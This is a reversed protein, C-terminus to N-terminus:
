EGHSGEPNVPDPRGAAPGREALYTTRPKLNLEGLLAYNRPDQRAAAVASAGDHLDGFTIARTPCAGQCATQVAGDPIPANTEDSVIRAQAIRQVCYTCKEMVGKSRVTVDPNRQQQLAPAPDTYDLYNFHRVKYPCYGSCARTGVCRNYVMLNLGEHDHLTAEVPCGVECPADECHMCPVPQFHTDPDDLGPSGKLGSYYRDIRLWHMERGVAVQDRGVIPINNESQCAVVCANCGICSDEDIVMGWARGDDDKPKAGQPPYLTPMSENRGAFGPAGVAQVRILDHGELTSHDQTTAFRVARGLKTLTAGGAQSVGDKGILAFADYGLGASLADPVRRGYGLSLTVTDPAQGPLIWVPGELSRQDLTIRVLDGQALKEREALAPGVAIPNDWVIKTLPKPLEQLWGNDAFRGDWVTPDPRFLLTLGTPSSAPDPSSAPAEFSPQVTELAFSSDRVYGDILAQRWVSDSLKGDGEGLWQAKLLALGDRPEAETLMAMIEPGSRGNYLPAIMPQILSVTGDFARADGWSELPHALPVHWDAHAATEDVMSGAHLKLKVRSLADVFGLEAPTSYAPNTDIMVLASVQGQAMAEVLAEITEAQRLLPQTFTVTQGINGLAANLRHVAEQVAVPQNASTVIISQGKAARLATGASKLWAARPDGAVATPTDVEARLAAVLAELEAPAVVIHRDAKASTLNPTAAASHLELLRGQGAEARRADMFARSFGIQQPGPDLFDGGISVVVRAKDFAWRTELPRGFMRRTAEYTCSRGVPAHVHWHLNPFDQRVRDMQALFSPSTLPGTLVRLGQGQDARLAAFQGTMAGRFAQWTSVRNLYRVTQSRAPDYLDLISAQGFADTGGRSWPHDANGEIKLPRGNRTTVLIGNAIGDLVASSAYVLPVGPEIREPNRVYPVEKGRGDPADCAALGAMAFSAAMLRLFHRRDPGDALRSAAPFEAEVFHRFAPTDAVADLSRWLVPGEGGQLRARLEAIDHPPASM